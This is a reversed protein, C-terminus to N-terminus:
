EDDDDDSYTSMGSQSMLYLGQLAGGFGVEALEDNATKELLNEPSQARRIGVSRLQGLDPAVDEKAKTATASTKRLEALVSDRGRQVAADLLAKLDIQEPATASKALAKALKPTAELQAVRDVVEGEFEEGLHIAELQDLREEISLGVTAAKKLGTHSELQSVRDDLGAAPMGGMSPDGGIAPDGGMAPDPADGMTPDMDDMDGDDMMANPDAPDAAMGGGEPAASNGAGAGSQLIQVAQQMVQLLAAVQQADM